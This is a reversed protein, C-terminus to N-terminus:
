KTVVAPFRAQEKWKPPAGILDQVNEEVVLEKASRALVFLGYPVVSQGPDPGGGFSASQFSHSDFRVLLHEAHEDISVIYEGNNNVSKGRFIALVMFRDFDVEPIVPENFSNKEIADGMHRTWAKTWDDATTLRLVELGKLIHSASGSWTVCPMPATPRAPQDARGRTALTGAIVMGAIGLALVSRIITM